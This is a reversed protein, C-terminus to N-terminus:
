SAVHWALDAVTAAAQQTTSNASRWIANAGSSDNRWFLDSRGDGDYDGIAAVNWHVDVVATLAQSQQSSASKWLTNSGTARNRWLVDMTGDGDFDGAGAIGWNQDAVQTLVRQLRSNGAPWLVNAGTRAHRWFIDARGDGDFDAVAAARWSQDVVSALAQQMRPNASRWLVNAGNSSSRWLIDDSGDGDFDGVGAVSWSLAVSPLVTQAQASAGRWIVNGGNASNRWLVDAAGNGDFDGTGAVQWAQSAVPTMSQQTASSASRWAVNSGTSLNRWLVDSRGDGNFDAMPRSARSIRFTAIVPITDRLSRANDAESAVGCPYVQAGVPGCISLQPNSFVRNQVQSSGAERYAMVTFFNGAGNTRYGFSYPYRGYEDADLLNGDNDSDDSGAATTRDHASGMNHGFEHALTEDRCYYGNDPFSAGGMGNTDSIVSMGAYEDTADIRTQEGGVIWAIGCGGQEPDNFNRVLSVLDAGYQDRAAHLPQLAAPITTTKCGSDTCTLGTLEYLASENSTADPYSVQVTAVLRLTASVQSNAYAQNAVDVMHTLRTVAQSRGGLRQAFTATYGLLVDVTNAASVTANATTASAAEADAVSGSALRWRSAPPLVADPLHPRAGASDLMALRAGDTEVMWTRGAETTLRLAPHNGYPISGFVAKEGFTIIAEIGPKAGDPRGVWTWNGDPHEVHRVYALRISQGDPATIEMAGTAIARIAHEESVSVAHWTYASRTRQPVARDFAVLDGRDPMSAVSSSVRPAAAPGRAMSWAGASQAHMAKAPPSGVDARFSWLAVATLALLSAVILHPRM